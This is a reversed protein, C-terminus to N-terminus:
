TYKYLRRAVKLHQGCLRTGKCARHSCRLGRSNEAACITKKFYAASECIELLTVAGCDHTEALQEYLGSELADFLQRREIRGDLLSLKMSIRTVACRISNGARSSLLANGVLIRGKYQQLIRCIRQYSLGYTDAVTELSQGERIATLIDKSHKRM